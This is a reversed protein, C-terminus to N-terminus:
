SISEAWPEELNSIGLYSPTGKQSTPTLPRHPAAPGSNSAPYTTRFNPIHRLPM